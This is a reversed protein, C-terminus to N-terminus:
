GRKEGFTGVDPTSRVPAPVAVTSGKTSPSVVRHQRRQARNLPVLEPTTRPHTEGEEEAVDERAVDESQPDEESEGLDDSTTKSRRVPENTVGNKLNTPTLYNGFSDCFLNLEGCSPCGTGVFTGNNSDAIPFTKSVTNESCSGCTYVMRAKFGFSKRVEWTRCTKYERIDYRRSM